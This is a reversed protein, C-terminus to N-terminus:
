ATCSYMYAKVSPQQPKMDNAQPSMYNIFALKQHLNQWSLTVLYQYCVQTDVTIIIIIIIVLQKIVM